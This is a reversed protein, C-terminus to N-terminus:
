NPLPPVAIGADRLRQWVREKYAFLPSSRSPAKNALSRSLPQRAGGGEYDFRAGLEILCWVMDWDMGVAAKTIVPDGGRDHADLDAGLSKMLRVGDCDHLNIFKMLVPDGNPRRTDPRGGAQFVAKMIQQGNPQIRYNEVALSVASAGDEAIANPDAGARLLTTVSQLKQRDVARMLPTVGHLGRADVQAGSALATAIGAADDAAVAQDLASQPGSSSFSSTAMPNGTDRNTFETAAQGSPWGLAAAMVLGGAVISHFPTRMTM